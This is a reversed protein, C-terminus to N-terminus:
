VTKQQKATPPPNLDSNGDLARKKIDLVHRPPRRYKVIHDMCMDVYNHYRSADKTNGVREVEKGSDIEASSYEVDGMTIGDPFIRSSIPFGEKNVPLNNRCFWHLILYLRKLINSFREVTDIGDEEVQWTMLTALFIAAKEAQKNYDPANEIPNDSSM